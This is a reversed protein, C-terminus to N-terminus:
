NHDNILQYITPFQKFADYFYPEIEEEGMRLM